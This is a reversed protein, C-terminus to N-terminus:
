AAKVLEKLSEKGREQPLFGIMNLPFIKLGCQQLDRRHQELQKMFKKRKTELTAKATPAGV